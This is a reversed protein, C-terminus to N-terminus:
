NGEVEDFRTTTHHIFFDLAGEFNDAGFSFEGGVVNGWGDFTGVVLRGDDYHMDVLLYTVQTADAELTAGGDGKVTVTIGDSFPLNDGIDAFPFEQRVKDIAKNYITTNSM